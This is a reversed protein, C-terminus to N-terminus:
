VGFAGSVSVQLILVTYSNLLIVGHVRPLTALAGDTACSRPLEDDVVIMLRAVDAFEQTVETVGHNATGTFIDGDEDVCGRIKVALLM